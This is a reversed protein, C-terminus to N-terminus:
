EMELVSKLKEYEERTIEGRAYRDDLAELADTIEPEFPAETEGAERPEIPEGPMETTPKRRRIIIVVVVIGIIVVVVIVGITVMTKNKNIKEIEDNCVSIKEECATVQAPDDYEAWTSKAEEFISKANEYGSPDFTNPAASLADEGQAFLSTAKERLAIWSNSEEVRTTCAEVQETYEIDQYLPKAKEYEEIAKEYERNNYLEEAEDFVTDAEMGTECKETYTEADETGEVAEANPYVETSDEFIDIAEEFSTKAQSFRHSEYLSVADSLKQQAQEVIVKYQKYPGGPEGLWEVANSLLELNQQDPEESVWNFFSSSCGFFVARGKGVKDMALLIDFPGEDEDDAKTGFGKGDISYLDAWSEDGTKVLAKGSKYSSIPTGFNLAIQEVGDTVPHSTIEDVYTQHVDSQFKKAKKDAIVVTESYFLVDFVRSVSNNPSEYNALFLLGGGNEVFKKIADAETSSYSKEFSAIILVDYGKLSSYSLKGSKKIDMSAIKQIEKAANGFGWQEDYNEFSNSWDTTKPFGLEILLEQAEEDMSEVRSEDVLVKITEASATFSVTSLLLLVTFVAVIM